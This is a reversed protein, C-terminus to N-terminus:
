RRRSVANKRRVVRNWLWAITECCIMPVRTVLWFVAEFLLELLLQIM